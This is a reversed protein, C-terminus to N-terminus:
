GEHGGFGFLLFRHFDIFCLPSQVLKFLDDSINRLDFKEGGRQHFSIVLQVDHRACRPSTLFGLPISNGGM